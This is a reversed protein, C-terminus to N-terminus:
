GSLDSRCFAPDVTPARKVTEFGAPSRRCHAIRERTVEERRPVVNDEERCAARPSFASEADVVALRGGAAGARRRGAAQNKERFLLFPLSRLLALLRRPGSPSLFSLVYRWLIRPRFYFRRYFERHKELLQERTLGHPVFVPRWYNFKSWDTEDLTGYQPPRRTSSALRSDAHQDHGGRRRAGDEPGRPDVPRHDGANRRSPRRHLLGQHPHGAERVLRHGAPSAGAFHTKKIPALIEENGSEIGFSIHWCGHDRMFRLLDEDVASVRSMCTWPFSINKRDLIEFLERIRQPRLTFTDDVFAIERVHYENWLHEIEAAVNEASRQRLSQGFVSRDCFTCQNPCGRSTIVNAAPLKKYNCPPPTYLSM